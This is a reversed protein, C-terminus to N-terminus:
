SCLDGRKLSICTNEVDSYLALGRMVLRVDNTYLASYDQVNYM